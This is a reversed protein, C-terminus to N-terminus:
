KKSLLADLSKKGPGTIFLVVLVAFLTVHASVGEKFYFFSSTLVFLAITSVLRTKFGVLVALAVFFEIAGTSFVWMADSVPLARDLGYQEVVLASSHPNFIKEYVALFAMACGVGIRLIFPILEQTKKSVVHIPLSFLHDLSPKHSSVLLLSIAIAVLDLNGFLYINQSLAYGYLAITVIALAPIFLGFLMLFGVAIQIGAVLNSAALLPSITEHMSGAGILASGLALRLILPIYEHYQEARNTIIGTIKTVTKNKSLFVYGGITALSTAIMLIIYGPTTFISFLFIFDMGKRAEFNDTGIVYGVHAFTPTASLVLFLLCIILTIRKM